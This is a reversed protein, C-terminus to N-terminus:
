EMLRGINVMGYGQKYWPEGLDTASYLLRKRAMDNDCELHASLYLALAGSVIPTAMSTGSKKIYANIYRGKRRTCAANCSMIETGPAVLDPKRLSSRISGRGSYTECRGPKDKFYEGDHCGVTIVRAGRGIPSLTDQEPGRHGAACVVLIGADWANGLWKILSEQRTKDQIEGVGISVNLIRIQYAKRKEIIWKIGEIMNEINGNGEHDLVKGVVLKTGPAIGRYRGNSLTGNGCAIGCVHTGHGSDDYAQQRQNVFDKFALINTALDPHPAVGTDLVGISCGMNQGSVLRNIGECGIQQRVRFMFRGTKKIDSDHYAPVKCFTKKNKTGKM